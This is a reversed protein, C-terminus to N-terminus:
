YKWIMGRAKASSKIWPSLKLNWYNKSKPSLRRSKRAVSAIINKPYHEFLWRVATEDGYELVREIIYRSHRQIDLSATDTDWFLSPRIHIKNKKVFLFNSPNKLKDNIAKIDMIDYPLKRRLKGNPDYKPLRM